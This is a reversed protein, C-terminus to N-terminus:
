FKYIILVDDFRGKQNRLDIITCNPHLAKFRHANQDLSLIDEIIYVGGKKMRHKLLDFTKIQDQEMHSADDIIIDFKQDGLKKNILDTTADCEIIEVQNRYEDMPFIVSIDVGVIKSNEFYKDFLEISKGGALGIEMISCGKQFPAFYGDYIDLYSHLSNKDNHGYDIGTHNGIENFIDVLTKKM